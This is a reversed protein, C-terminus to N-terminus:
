ASTLRAPHLSDCLEALPAGPLLRVVRGRLLGGHRCRGGRREGVVCRLVAVGHRRLLLRRPLPISHSPGRGSKCTCQDTLDDVIRLAWRWAPVGRCFPSHAILLSRVRQLRLAHGCHGDTCAARSTSTWSAPPRSSAPRSGHAGLLLRRRRRRLALTLRCELPGCECASRDDEWSSAGPLHFVSM